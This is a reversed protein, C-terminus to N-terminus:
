KSGGQLNEWSPVWIQPFDDWRANPPLAKCWSQPLAEILFCAAEFELLALEGSIGNDKRQDASQSLV